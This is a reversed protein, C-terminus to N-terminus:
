TSLLPQAKSNSILGGTAPPAAYHRIKKKPQIKQNEIEESPSMSKILLKNLQVKVNKHAIRHSDVDLSIPKQFCSVRGFFFVTVRMLIQDKLLESLFLGIAMLPITM